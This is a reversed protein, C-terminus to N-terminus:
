QAIRLGGATAGAAPRLEDWQKADPLVRSRVGKALAILDDDLAHDYRQSMEGTSHGMITDVLSKDAVRLAHSEFTHRGTGFGCGFRKVGLAKLVKNFELAVSDQHTETTPVGKDDLKVKRIVWPRGRSTIFV